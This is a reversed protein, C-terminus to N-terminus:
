YIFYPYEFKKCECLAHTTFCEYKNLNYFYEENSTLHLVPSVLEFKVEIVCFHKLENINNFPVLRLWQRNDKDPNPSVVKQIFTRRLIGLSSASFTSKRCTMTSVLFEAPNVDDGVQTDLSLWGELLWM